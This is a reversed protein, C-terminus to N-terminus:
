QRHRIENGPIAKDSAEVAQGCKSTLYVGIKLKMCLERPPGMGHSLPLGARLSSLTPLPGFTINPFSPPGPGSALGDVAGSLFKPFAMVFDRKLEKTNLPLKANMM